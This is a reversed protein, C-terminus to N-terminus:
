LGISNALSEARSLDKDLAAMTKGLDPSVDGAWVRLNKIYIGSLGALRAAGRLGLTDMGAAELMWSMSKCVHPLGIVFQKPDSKFSDLVSVLGSRYENLVEFREMLIDFLRDRPSAASDGEGLGALVRGDVMRSFGALIDSKDEFHEHLAALSLKSAKAIDALTIYAWGKKAALNLATEIIKVKPDKQQRKAM